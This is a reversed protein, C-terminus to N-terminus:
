SVGGKIGYIRVPIMITNDQTTKTNGFEAYYRGHGFYISSRYFIVPRVLPNYAAVSCWIQEARECIFTRYNSSTTSLKFVVIVFECNDGNIDFEIEGFESSPDENEWLLEMGRNTLYTLGEYYPEYTDDSDSALRIMPYFTLNNFTIGSMIGIQILSNTDTTTNVPVSNGKDLNKTGDTLTSYLYYTGTSGGSPCGSLKYSGASLAVDGIPFAMANTATGNATVSGDDNVTFTVGNVTQSKATTHLLNKSGQMITRNLDVIGKDYYPEYTDDIESAIRLMPYYTLGTVTVGSTVRITFSYKQTGDTSFAVSNGIDISNSGEAPAAYLIYSDMSGDAPCGSLIYNGSPLLVGSTITFYCDNTATGNLTVSGDTNITFTIGTKTLSKATNKLLNKGGSHIVRNTIQNNVYTKIDDLSSGGISDLILEDKLVYDSAPKGGLTDANISNGGNTDSSGSLDITVDGGGIDLDSIPYRNIEGAQEILLKASDDIESLVPVAPLIINAM